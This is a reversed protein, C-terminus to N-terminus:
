KLFREAFLDYLIAIAGLARQGKRLSYETYRVTVPVEVYSLNQHAIIELVESAHAMRNQVLKVSDLAPRSFARLGNHADTVKLGTTIRTFVTAARLLIRRSLPMNSTTGLFRSGLAVDTRKDGLAAVLAVADELRHQGDADFTVVASCRLRCALEFGTQLSAGQGLNIPHRAVIAGARLAENATNDPSGDDVVIVKEVGAARLGTVVEAIVNGERFAPIVFVVDSLATTM